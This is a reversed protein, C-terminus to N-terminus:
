KKDKQNKFYDQYLSMAVYESIKSEASKKLKSIMFGFETYVVVNKKVDKVMMVHNNGDMKVMATFYNRYCGFYVHVPFNYIDVGKEWWPKMIYLSDTIKQKKLIQGMSNHLYKVESYRNVKCFGKTKKVITDFEEKYIQYETEDFIRLVYVTQFKESGNVFVIRHYKKFVQIDGVFIQISPKGMPTITVKTTEHIM